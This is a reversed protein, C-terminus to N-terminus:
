PATVRVQEVLEEASTRREEDERRYDTIIAVITNCLIDKWARGTRVVAYHGGDGSAGGEADLRYDHQELWDNATDETTFPGVYSADKSGYTIHVYYSEDELSRELKKALDPHKKSLVRSDPSSLFLEHKRVQEEKNKPGESM